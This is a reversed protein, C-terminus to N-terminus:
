LGSSPSVLRSGSPDKYSLPSGDYDVLTKSNDEPGCGIHIESNKKIYEQEKDYDYGKFRLTVSEQRAKDIANDFPTINEFRNLSDINVFQYEFNSYKFICRFTSSQALPQTYDLSLMDMGDIIPYQLVVRSYVRGNENLIDVNFYDVLSLNETDRAYHYQFSELLLFYNIFGLTHRFDVNLTHDILALPSAVSRYNVDSAGGQIWNEEYRDQNFFRVQTAHSTQQQPITAQNFGLVEVKQISENLFEIPKTVFSHADTLIKTYKEQIEEPIFEDPLLLRFGDRKAPLSFM